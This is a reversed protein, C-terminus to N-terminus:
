PYPLEWARRVNATPFTNAMVSETKPMRSLSVSKRGEQMLNRALRLAVDYAYEDEHLEIKGIRGIAGPDPGGHGSVVYFCAGQLRNSTVKVDALAKGFLPENIARKRNGAPKSASSDTAGEKGGDVSNGGNRLQHCYM